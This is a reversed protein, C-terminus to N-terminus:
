SGSHNIAIPATAYCQKRCIELLHDEGCIQYCQCRTVNILPNKPVFDHVSIIISGLRTLGCPIINDHLAKTSIRLKSM